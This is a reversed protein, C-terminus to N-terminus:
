RSQDAATQLSSGSQQLKATLQEVQAALADVKAQQQAQLYTVLATLAPFDVRIVVPQPVINLSVMM